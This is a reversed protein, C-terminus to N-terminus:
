ANPTGLAEDTADLVAALEMGTGRLLDVATSRVQWVIGIVPLPTGPALAASARRVGSLAKERVLRMNTEEHEPEGTLAASLARVAEALDRIADCLGKPTRSPGRTAVLVARALVRTNRVAYDIQRAVDEYRKLLMQRQRRLPDLRSSELGVTVAQQFAAVASDTARAQELADQARELDHAELADATQELVKSLTDFVDAAEGVVVRVPSRHLPLQNVLLAVLGGILADQFRGIGLPTGSPGVVAVFVASVTAQVALIPGGGLLVATTLTLVTVVVVAGITGPGLAHTILDAVLVGVAVGVVIEVARQMRQGRTVGLVILAAAPAFFPQSHHLLRAAILWAVAAAITAEVIRLWDERVRRLGALAIGRAALWTSV